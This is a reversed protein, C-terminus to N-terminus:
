VSASNRHRLCGLADAVVCLVLVLCAPWVRFVVVYCSLALMVILYM